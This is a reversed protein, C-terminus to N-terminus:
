CVSRSGAGGSLTERSGVAALGCVAGVVGNAGCVIRWNESVGDASGTEAAMNTGSIRESIRACVDDRSM